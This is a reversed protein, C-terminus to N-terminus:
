RSRRPRSAKPKSRAVPELASMHLYSARVYEDAVEPYRPNRGTFIVVVHKALRINEPHAIAYKEGSSMVINFPEFPQKKIAEILISYHM